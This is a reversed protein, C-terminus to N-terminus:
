INNVQKPILKKKSPATQIILRLPAREPPLVRGATTPHQQPGRKAATENQLPGDQCSGYPGSQYTSTRHARKPTKKKKLPRRSIRRLPGVELQRINGHARNPLLKRKPPVTKAAQTTAREPLQTNNLAWNPM